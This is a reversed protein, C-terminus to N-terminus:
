KGLVKKIFNNKQATYKKRDNAYNKSLDKKLESYRLALSQNQNLCNRFNIFSKWVQGNYKILHLHHTVKNNSGKRFFLRQNTKSAEPRYLYGLKSLPKILTKAERFTKVGLAMDIIPKASISKIATSGVHEVFIVKKNLFKKIKKEEKSFNLEWQKQHPVLKVKGRALGIM